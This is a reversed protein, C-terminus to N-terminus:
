MKVSVWGLDNVVFDNVLKAEGPLPHTKFVVLKRAYFGNTLSCNVSGNGGQPVPQEEPHCPLPTVIATTLVNFM